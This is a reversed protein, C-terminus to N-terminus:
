DNKDDTQVRKLVESGGFKKWSFKINCFEYFFELDKETKVLITCILKCWSVRTHVNLRADLVHHINMHRRVFATYDRIYKLM